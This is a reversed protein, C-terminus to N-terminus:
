DEPVYITWSHAVWKLCGEGTALFEVLPVTRGGFTVTSKKPSPWKWNIMAVLIETRWEERTGNAKEDIYSKESYINSNPIIRVLHTTVPLGARRTTKTRFIPRDLEDYFTTNLLKSRRYQIFM